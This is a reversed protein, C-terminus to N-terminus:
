GGRGVCRMAEGAVGAADRVSACLRGDLAIEGLRKKWFAWRVDEECGDTGAGAEAEESKELENSWLPGERVLGRGEEIVGDRGGWTKDRFIEQGAVILWAAAPESFQSLQTASRYELGDTITWLGFDELWSRLAAVPVSTQRHHNSLHAIFRNLNTYMADAQPQPVHLTKPGNWYERAACGFGELNRFLAAVETVKSPDDDTETTTSGASNPATQALAVLLHSLGQHIKDEATSMATMYVFSIFEYWADGAPSGTRPGDHDDPIPPADLLHRAVKRVAEQIVTTDDPASEVIEALLATCLDGTSTYMAIIKHSDTSTLINHPQM